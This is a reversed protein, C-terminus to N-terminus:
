RGLGHKVQTEETIMYFIFYLVIHLIINNM